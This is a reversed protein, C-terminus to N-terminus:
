SRALGTLASRADLLAQADARWGAMAKAAGPDLQDLAAVAGALDGADLRAQAQALVRSVPVGVLVKDGQQITALTQVQQWMRQALPLAANAPDGAQAAASAAAPFGLRLSAETPPAVYAFKALAPPAGPIDGLPKGANLAAAVAQLRAMRAAGAQIAQEAHVLRRELMDLRSTLAHESSAEGAPAPEAPGGSAADPVAPPTADPTASPAPAPRQELAALRGEVMGLRDASPAAPRQELQAVRDELTGLRGQLVAVFAPPPRQELQALRQELAGLQDAPVSVAAPAGSSAPAGIRAAIDQQQGWLWVGGAATAAFGLLVLAGLASRRPPAPRVLPPPVRSAATRSVVASGKRPPVAIPTLDIM